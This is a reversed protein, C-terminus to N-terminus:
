VQDVARVPDVFPNERELERSRRGYDTGSVVRGTGIGSEIEKDLSGKVKGDGNPSEGLEWSGVREHRVITAGAGGKFALDTDSGLRDAGKFGGGNGGGSGGRKLVSIDGLDRHSVNGSGKGRKRHEVRFGALLLGAVLFVFAAVAVTAGIVGGITPSVGKGEGGSGQVYPGGNEVDTNTSNGSASDEFANCFFTQTGCTRCWDLIDTLAFAGMARLFEPWPIVTEANGRGFLSYARTEADAESGNRFLFRISLQDPSPMTTAGGASSSSQSTSFLEFTMTSGHDPLTNFQPASPGTALNSLAFFSLFPEYSGFLLSLKSATGSSAINNNLKQLVKAALTRGGIANILDTGNPTNFTWQQESALNRLIALDDTTFTQSTHISSNHNYQYLAGEYVELANAYNLTSSDRDPFVTSSLSSYYAQTDQIKSVYAPTNVSKLQSNSYQKCDSQGAIWIHNFDLDSLTAITPYQYGSLPYEYRGGDGSLTEEDSTIADFPPYLGQMFAVASAAVHPTDMTSADLQGNDLDHVSIGNIPITEQSINMSTIYRNRIGTGANFLQQAGLPTLDISRFPSHFDPTKEGHYTYTVAAWTIQNTSQSLTPTTLLLLLLPLIHATLHPTM